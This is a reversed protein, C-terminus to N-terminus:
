PIVTNATFRVMRSLNRAGFGNGFEPVLKASVKQLIEVGYEARKEKLVDQDISEGWFQFLVIL